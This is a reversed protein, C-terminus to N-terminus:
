RERNGQMWLGGALLGAAGTDREGLEGCGGLFVATTQWWYRNEFVDGLVDAEGGDMDGGGFGVVDDVGDAAADTQEIAIIVAAEVDHEDVPGGDLAEAGAAIREDSEVALFGVASELVDGLFSAEGTTAPSHTHGDGIVVVVALEVQEDGSEAAAGKVATESVALELVDGFFGADTAAAEHSASGPAIVIAVAEDIEVNRAIRMEVHVIERLKAAVFEAAEFANQHLAAGPAELAFAIKEIVIAAVAGELFNGDLGADMVVDAVVAEADHPHVVVVVAPGVEEDGVVRDGVIEIVVIVVTGEGVRAHESTHGEAAFTHLEAIHADIPAIVVVAAAEAKEDRVEFLLGVGEIAVHTWLTEVVDTPSGAYALGAIRVDAPAGSKEIHVIVGPEVKQDGVAVNIRLDVSQFGPGAKAFRKEEM